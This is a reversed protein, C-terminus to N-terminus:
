SISKDGAAPADQKHSCLASCVAGLWSSSGAHPTSLSLDVQSSLLLLLPSPLLWPDVGAASGWHQGPRGRIVVRWRVFGDSSLSYFHPLGRKNTDFQTWTNLQKGSRHGAPHGVPDWHSDEDAAHWDWWQWEAGSPLPAFCLVPLQLILTLSRICAILFLVTHFPEKPVVWLKECHFHLCNQLSCFQGSGYHKTSVPSKNGFSFLNKIFTLFYITKNVFLALIRLFRPLKKWMNSLCSYVAYKNPCKKQQPNSWMQSANGSCNSEGPVLFRQFSSRTEM